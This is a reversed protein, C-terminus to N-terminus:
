ALDKFNTALYWVVEETIQQTIIQSPAPAITIQVNLVVLKGELTGRNKSYSMISKFGPFALKSITNNVANLSPQPYLDSFLVKLQIESESFTGIVCSIKGFFYLIICTKGAQNTKIEFRRIPEINPM